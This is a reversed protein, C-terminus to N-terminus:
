DEMRNLIYASGAFVACAPIALAVLTGLAVTDEAGAICCMALFGIGMLARFINKM